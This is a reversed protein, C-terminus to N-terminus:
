KVLAYSVIVVLVDVRAGAAWDGTECGVLHFPVVEDRAEAVARHPEVVLPLLRLRRHHAHPLLVLRPQRVHVQLAAALPLQHARAAAAFDLQPVQAPVAADAGDARGLVRQAGEADVLVGGDEGDSGVAV